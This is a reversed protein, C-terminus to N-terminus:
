WVSEKFRQWLLDILITKTFLSHMHELSTNLHQKNWVSILIANETTIGLFLKRLYSLKLLLASSEDGLFDWQNPEQIKVTEVGQPQALQLIWSWIVMRTQIALPVSAAPWVEWRPLVRSNHSIPQLIKVHLNTKLMFRSLGPLQPQCLVPKM